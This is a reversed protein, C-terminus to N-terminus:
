VRIVDSYSIRGTFSFRNFCSFFSSWHKSGGGRVPLVVFLHSVSCYRCLFLYALRRVVRDEIIRTM